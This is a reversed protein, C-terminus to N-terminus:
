RTSSVGTTQRPKPPTERALFHILRQAELEEGRDVMESILYSLSLAVLEALSKEPLQQQSLRRL